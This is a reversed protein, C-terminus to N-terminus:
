GLLARVLAQVIIPAGIAAGVGVVIKFYLDHRTVRGNTLTTQQKIETVDGQLEDHKAKLRQLDRWIARVYDSQTRPTPDIEFAADM